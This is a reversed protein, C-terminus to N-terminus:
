KGADPKLDLGCAGNCVACQHVNKFASMQYQSPNSKEWDKLYGMGKKRMDELTKQLETREKDTLRLLSIRKSVWRQMLTNIAALQDEPKESYLKEKLDGALGPGFSSAKTTDGGWSFKVGYFVEPRSQYAELAHITPMCVPCAYIFHAYVRSFEKAKENKLLIRSVDNSSLGDEYCGEMVAYFIFRYGDDFNEARSLPARLLLAVLTLFLAFHQKWHNKM